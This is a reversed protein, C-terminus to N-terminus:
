KTALIKTKKIETNLLGNLLKSNLLGFLSTAKSHLNKLKNLREEFIEIEEVGNGEKSSASNVIQYSSSIMNDVDSLARQALSKIRDMIVKTIDPEARYYDRRSGKVWVKTVAGYRELARINVSVSGKSAKLREVMDDLSLPKGGLYLIAYLQAMINNLGFQRCVQNTSNLVINQAKELRKDM